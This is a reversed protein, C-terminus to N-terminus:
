QNSLHAAKVGNSERARGRQQMRENADKHRGPHFAHAQNPMAAVIPRSAFYLKRTAIFRAFFFALDLEITLHLFQDKVALIFVTRARHTDREDRNLVFHDDQSVPNRRGLLLLM